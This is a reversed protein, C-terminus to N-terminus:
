PPPPPNNLPIIVKLDGSGVFATGGYEPLLNGSIDLEIKAPANPNPTVIGMHAIISWLITEVSPGDFGALLRETDEYSRIETWLPKLFGEMLITTPDINAVSEGATFSINAIIELPIQSGLDVRHPDFKVKAKVKAEIVPLFAIGVFISFALLCALALKWTRM